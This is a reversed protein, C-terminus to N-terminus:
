SEKEKDKKILSNGTMEKPKTIEMMNIITPIVDKISGEKKIVYRQDCIVFPVPNTTHSTVINNYKDLMYEANGHDATIVVEYFQNEATEIIKGLCIDIKEIAEITADLNGTHGVMDPNAFNTLIFDYNEEMLNLTTETVESANMEPLLDYTAVKPSPILFNDCNKLKKESGGNFFYTVHAYKETEAVRAQKFDLGSIYEGFTNKIDDMKYAYDINKYIKFISATKLEKFEKRKFEKFTKKKFVDILQRMREPRFNVFIIGDKEKIQSFPSIISPNIFEDTVGSNYHRKLCATADKFSSGKGYVIADYAKKIRDWRNDRDMAYYRGSITGIEGLGVKKIKTEFDKIFDKGSVPSTDRGDTFFHFYVKKVKKLKALALVAYFHTISSHVGGDSLLGMVHLSSDNENVYNMVDILVEEKFFQKNKIKENILLLPQKVTRGSGLTIHGVESNGMQGKPLGVETGSANLSAHPYEAYLKDFVSTNALRIANGNKDENIGFGDLVILLIKKM